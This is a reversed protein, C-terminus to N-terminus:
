RGRGICDPTKPQNESKQVPLESQKELRNTCQVTTGSTESQLATM